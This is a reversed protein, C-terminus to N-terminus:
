AMLVQITGKPPCKYREANCYGINLFYQLLEIAKRIRLVEFVLIDNIVM